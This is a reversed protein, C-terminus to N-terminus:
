LPADSLRNDRKQGWYSPDGADCGGAVYDTEIDPICWWHQNRDVCNLVGNDVWYGALQNTTSGPV